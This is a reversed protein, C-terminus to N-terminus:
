EKNYVYPSAQSVPQIIMEEISVNYPQSAVFFISDAINEAVLPEFGNYMSDAKEKDGKFRVESFETKVAGPSINSIKIKHKVLDVRMAHSLSKVAHKTACYINGGPYVVHGALSSLNIVHGRQREIMSPLVAKTVYLLGKVNTDIMTEWDSIDGDQFGGRGLALGANNILVDVYDIDALIKRIASEVATKEQVDFDAIHVEVGFDHKLEDAIQILRDRRRGTLVLNWGNAGFKNACAKGIGSTAGTILVTSKM